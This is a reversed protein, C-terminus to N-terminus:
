SGSETKLRALENYVTARSIGLMKAVYVPARRGEFAGTADLAEILARRGARDLRDLTTGRESTWAAVFSNIKEHWDAHFAADVTSTPEGGAGLLAQLTRRAADFETVDANVCLMGIPAGSIDRLVMSISKLRRGDWNIKSYPGIVREDPSFSIEKMDSPDGPERPSFRNAIHAVCDTTLDHVVAEVFPGLLAALGDAIVFYPELPSTLRGPETATMTKRPNM